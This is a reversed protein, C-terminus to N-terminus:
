HEMMFLLVSRGTVDYHHGGEFAPADALDPQNTDIQLSWAKGDPLSPLTFSVLDQWSNLVLLMTADSGIRKIGTAQARGDMLMGLCRVNTDTWDGEGMEQGSTALWTLDKFGAEENSEGSLFRSHRLIAYKHRLGTM